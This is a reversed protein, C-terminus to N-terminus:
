RSMANVGKDIEKMRARGTGLGFMSCWSQICSFLRLFVRYDLPLAYRKSSPVSVTKKDLGAAKAAQINIRILSESIGLGTAKAPQLDQM